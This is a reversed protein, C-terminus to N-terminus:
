VVKIDEVKFYRRVIDKLHNLNSSDRGIIMGKTKTDPGYLKIIGEEEKIEKLRLPYLFNQIFRLKDGNFEVIKIRKKLISEMKRINVGNKGIAKGIENEQVIFLIIENVVCDKVQAQTITEFLTIYKM